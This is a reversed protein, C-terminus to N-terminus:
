HATLFSVGLVGVFDRGDGVDLDPPDANLVRAVRHRHYSHLLAGFSPGGAGETGHLAEHLRPLAYWPATPREHHANHYGFNLTLLNLWPWRRSILNSYTNRQEYHRDRGPGPPEPPAELSHRMTYTHQHVDM